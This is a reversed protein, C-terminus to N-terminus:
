NVAVFSCSHSFPVEAGMAQGVVILESFECTDLMKGLIFAKLTNSGQFKQVSFTELLSLSLSNGNVVAFNTFASVPVGANCKKQAIKSPNLKTRLAALRVVQERLVFFPFRLAYNVAHVLCDTSLKDDCEFFFTADALKEPAYEIPKRGYLWGTTLFKEDARLEKVEEKTTNAFNSGPIVAYRLFQAPIPVKELKSGEYAGEHALLSIIAIRLEHPLIDLVSSVRVPVFKYESVSVMERQVIELAIFV